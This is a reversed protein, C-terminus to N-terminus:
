VGTCQGRPDPLLPCPCAKYIMCVLSVFRGIGSDRRRGGGLYQLGLRAMETDTRQDSPSTRSGRHARGVGGASAQSRAAHTPQLEINANAVAAEVTERLEKNSKDLSLGDDIPLIAMEFSSTSDAAFVARQFFAFNFASAWPEYYETAPRGEDLGGADGAGAGWSWLKTFQPEDPADRTVCACGSGTEDGASVAHYNGEKSPFDYFIGSTPWDLPKVFTENNWPFLQAIDPFCWGDRKWRMRQPSIIKSEKTIPYTQPFWAEGLADESTPNTVSMEFRM